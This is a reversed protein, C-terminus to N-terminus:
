LATHTQKGNMSCKNIHILNYGFQTRIASSVGFSAYGKTQLASHKQRGEGGGGYLYVSM